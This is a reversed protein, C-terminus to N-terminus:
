ATTSGYDWAAFDAFVLQGKRNATEVTVEGRYKASPRMEHPFADASHCDLSSTPSAESVGDPGITSWEFYQPIGESMSDYSPSTEVRLSLVLRHGRDPTNM